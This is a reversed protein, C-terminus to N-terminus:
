LGQDVVAKLTWADREGIPTNKYSKVALDLLIPVQGNPIGYKRSYELVATKVVLAIRPKKQRM